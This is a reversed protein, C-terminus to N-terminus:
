NPYRDSKFPWFFFEGIVVCILLTFLAKLLGNVCMKLFDAWMWWSIWIMMRRNNDVNKPQFFLYFLVCHVNPQGLWVSFFINHFIIPYAFSKHKKTHICEDGVNDNPISCQEHSVYYIETYLFFNINFFWSCSFFSSHSNSYLLKAARDHNTKMCYFFCSSYLL